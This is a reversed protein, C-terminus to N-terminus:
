AFVLSKGTKCTVYQKGSALFDRVTQRFGLGPLLIFDRIGHLAHSKVCLGFPVHSKHQHGVTHLKKRKHGVTRSEQPNPTMLVFPGTGRLILVFPRVGEPM